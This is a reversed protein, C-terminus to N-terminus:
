TNHIIFSLLYFTGNSTMFEKASGSKGKQLSLLSKTRQLLNETLLKTDKDQITKMMRNLTLLIQDAPQTLFLYKYFSYWSKFWAINPCTILYLFMEAAAQLEENTLSENIHESSEIQLMQEVAKVQSMMIDDSVTDCSLDLATRIKVTKVVSHIHNVSIGNINFLNAFRFIESEM